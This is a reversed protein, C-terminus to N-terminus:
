LLSNLTYQIKNTRPTTKSASQSCNDIPDDDTLQAHESWLIGSIKLYGLMKKQGFCLGAYAYEEKVLVLNYKYYM